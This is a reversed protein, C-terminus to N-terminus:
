GGRGDRRGTAAARCRASTATGAAARAARRYGRGMRWQARGVKESPWEQGKAGTRTAEQRQQQRLVRQRLVRQHDVVNQLQLLNDSLGTPQILVYPQEQRGAGQEIALRLQRLSTSRGIEHLLAEVQDELRKKEEEARNLGTRTGHM